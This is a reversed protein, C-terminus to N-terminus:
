RNQRMCHVHTRESACLAKSDFHQVNNAHVPYEANLKLNFAMQREHIRYKTGSARSKGCCKFTNTWSTHMKQYYVTRQARLRKGDHAKYM